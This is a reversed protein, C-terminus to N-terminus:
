TRCRLQREAWPVLKERFIKANHRVDVPLSHHFLFDGSSATQSFKEGL